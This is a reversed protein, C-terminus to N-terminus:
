FHHIKSKKIIFKCRSIRDPLDCLHQPRHSVTINLIILKENLLSSNQMLFTFKANFIIFQTGCCASILGHHANIIM